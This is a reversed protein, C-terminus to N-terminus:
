PLHVLVPLYGSTQLWDIAEFLPVVAAFALGDVLTRLFLEPRTRLWEADRWNRLRPGFRPVRSVYSQYAPGFCRALAAEEILVVPRFVAIALAAFLVAVSISGSQAGVGAAGIFSFLYLPNRSVSYPSLDVLEATKRGGIYLTCWSRGVVCLAILALGLIEVAEHAMGSVPWTSQIFPLLAAAIACGFALVQKRIRQVKGLGHGARAAESPVAPDPFPAGEGATKSPAETMM